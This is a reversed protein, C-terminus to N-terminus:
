GAVLRMIDQYTVFIILLILMAFGALHIYGEHEPNLPKRRVLEIILFVIRGGDLAPLPMLNVVGLNITILALLFLFSMNGGETTTAEKASEGVMQIVGVPGAMEEVGVRATLLDFLMTWILKITSISRFFTAHIVTGFNKSLLAPEFDLQGYTVGGATATLFQVNKIVLKEGNRLVTVDVPDQGERFLVYVIDDFVNIRNNNMRLIEDAEL